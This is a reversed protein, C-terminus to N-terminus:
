ELTRVSAGTATASISARRVLGIGSGTGLDLGVDWALRVVLHRNRVVGVEVFLSVADLTHESLELVPSADGGSVLVAGM